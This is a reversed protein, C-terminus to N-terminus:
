KYKELMGEIPFDKRRTKLAFAKSFKNLYRELEITYEITEQTVKILRQNRSTFLDNLYPIKFDNDLKDNKLIAVIHDPYKECSQKFLEECLLHKEDKRQISRSIDFGRLGSIYKNITSTNYFPNTDKFQNIRAKISDTIEAINNYGYTHPALAPFHPYGKKSRVEFGRKDINYEFQNYSNSITQHLKYIQGKDKPTELLHTINNSLCDRLKVVDGYIDKHTLLINTLEDDHIKIIIDNTFKDKLISYLLILMGGFSLLIWKNEIIFKGLEQYLNKDFVADIIINIFRNNNLFLNGITAVFLCITICFLNRKSSSSFLTPRFSDNDKYNDFYFPEIKIICRFIIKRLYYNTVLLKSIYTANSHNSIEILKKQSWLYFSNYLHLLLDCLLYFLFLVFLIALFSAGISSSWFDKIQQFIM